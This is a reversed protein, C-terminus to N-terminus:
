DKLGSFSQYAALARRRAEAHDVMPHPYTTGLAVDAQTLAEAPAEWPRHLYRSPVKSLEPVFQRVYAGEPDFREGQMMPNFVRFYPAADAGCGATWQWGLTNNALDADVLTDWFWRAGEQWPINLDKILFSAAIMRVRNHMWGTQWLQRMGADVIPFGTQGHSWKELNRRNRRWPFDEFEARLPTNATHPFHWLLHYAFERWGLQRLYAEAGKVVGRGGELVMHEKVAHWVEQPSIEGFHLHPSLRSTGIRDPRDRDAAYGTIAQELFRNLEQEAGKRGPNWSESLSGARDIVPELALERLALSSPWAPPAMFNARVRGTESPEELGCCARWFPTFVKFPGGQRTQVAGPEFLLAGGFSRADAGIQQLSKQIRTDRAASKPDYRRTWYVASAGTEDMLHRLVELSSGKRLLLRLGRANFEVDLSKLSRHLWWKGAAGPAWPKEEDPAWIFVPIM